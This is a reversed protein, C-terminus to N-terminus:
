HRILTTCPRTPSTTLSMWCRASRLDVEDKRIMALGDRGSVNRLQVHINPYKARFRSVLDPLIYIITSEGAAIVVEGSDTNTDTEQRFRDHLRDIGEVLPRSLDLLKRGEPTMRLSPGKREFLRTDLSSELAKIQLSIASQSLFLEKAADSMKGARAVACFARLQKLTNGKYYNRPTKSM